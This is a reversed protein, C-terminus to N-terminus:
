TLSRELQQHEFIERYLPSTKALEEHTGVASVRGADIVAIRDCWRVSTARQSIVLTTRGRAAARIGDFLTKETVADVSATADDFVLVRPDMALARAITLRQRQGGSLSVGREGVLTQYGEPLESVFDHAAAQRACTEITEPTVGPRGYAINDAVSASFLFPEQFVLGVAARLERVDLERLDVGDLLIRGAAPDYYRPLLQVLSSKGSGTPGIIGLSGGAPVRVTVGRLVPTGATHGFHVDEIVLEGKAGHRPEPLTRPEEPQVIMEDRDLVEFVRAASAASEQGLIILRTLPRLRHQVKRIYLVAAAVEALSGVGNVLRYVAVILVLPTALAFLTHVVPVRGTWYRAMAQWRATFSGLHKGFRGSEGRERGFARVVRAGAVNEQLATTVLDYRESAERDLVAVTRGVSIALSLGGAVTLTMVLGYSWHLWFSLAIVGVVLLALELYGYAVERFFHKAKEMDRLSRAITKGSRNADHYVFRLRLVQTFLDTRLRNELDQGLGTAAVQAVYHLVSRLAMLAGLVWLFQVFEAPLAGGRGAMQDLSGIAAALLTTAALDASAQTLSVAFVGLAKGWVPRFRRALRWLTARPVHTTTSTAPQDSM